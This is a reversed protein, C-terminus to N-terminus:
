AVIKLGTADPFCLTGRFDSILMLINTKLKVILRHAGFFPVCDAKLFLCKRCMVDGHVEDEQVEDFSLCWM